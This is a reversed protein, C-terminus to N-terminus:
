TALAAELPKAVTEELVEPAVGSNTVNARIQPYVISPLLDLPLGMLFFGGLVAVVSTLMLTGVPRTIALSPLGGRERPRRTMAPRRPEARRRRYGRRGPRRRADRDRDTDA